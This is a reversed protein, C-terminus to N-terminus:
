EIVKDARGLLLEPITIVLARATTLDKQVAPNHGLRWIANPRSRWCNWRVYTRAQRYPIPTGIGSSARPLVGPVSGPGIADASGSRVTILYGIRIAVINAEGVGTETALRRQELTLDPPPLLPLSADKPLQADARKPPNVM